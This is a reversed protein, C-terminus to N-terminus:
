IYRYLLAVIVLLGLLGYAFTNMPKESIMSLAIVFICYSVFFLLFTIDQITYVKAPVFPDEMTQKRELFERDATAAAQEATAIEYELEGKEEELKVVQTVLDGLSRTKQEYNTILSPLQSQFQDQVRVKRTDWDYATAM